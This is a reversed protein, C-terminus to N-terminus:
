GAMPPKICGIRVVMLLIRLKSFRLVMPAMARAWAGTSTLSDWAGGTGLAFGGGLHNFALLYYPNSSTDFGTGFFASGSTGENQFDWLAQQFEGAQTATAITNAGLLNHDFLNFLYATGM